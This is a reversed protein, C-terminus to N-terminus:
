ENREREKTPGRVDGGRSSSTMGDGDNGGGVAIEFGCRSKKHM